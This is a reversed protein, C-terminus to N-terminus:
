WEVAWTMLNLCTRGGAKHMPCKAEVEPATRPTDGPSDSAM